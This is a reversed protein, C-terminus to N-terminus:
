VGLRAPMGSLIQAFRLANSPREKMKQPPVVLRVKTILITRQLCSPRAAHVFPKLISLNDLSSDATAVRERESDLISVLVDGLLLGMIEEKETSLAHTVCMMWVESTVEVDTLSMNWCAEAAGAESTFSV